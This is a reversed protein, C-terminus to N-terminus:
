LAVWSCPFLDSAASYTRAACGVATLAATSSNRAGAFSCGIPKPNLCCDFDVLPYGAGFAAM